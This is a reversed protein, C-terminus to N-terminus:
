KVKKLEFTFGAHGCNTEGKIVNGERVASTQCPSEHLNLVWTIDNGQVTFMEAEATMSEDRSITIIGKWEKEKTIVLKMAGTGVAESKFTGEWTGPLDASNDAPHQAMLPTAGLVFAIVAFRILM